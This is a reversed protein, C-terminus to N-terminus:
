TPCGARRREYDLAEPLSSFGRSFNPKASPLQQINQKYADLTLDFDTCAKDKRGLALNVRAMNYYVNTLADYRGASRLQPAAQDYYELAKRYFDNAKTLRNDFTISKDAFGDRRYVAEDRAVAPSTLLEAYERYANGLGHSDGNHQYINIAEIILREAPLPRDKQGFLVAADNLKTLPDNTAVIGVGACACLLSALLVAVLTSRM